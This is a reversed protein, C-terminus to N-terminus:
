RSGIAQQNAPLPVLDWTDNEILSNYEEDMAKKWEKKDSSHIGEDYHAPEGTTAIYACECAYNVHHQKRRSLKPPDWYNGLDAQVENDIGSKCKKKGKQPIDEEKNDDVIEMIRLEPPRMPVQAISRMPMPQVTKALIMPTIANVMPTTGSAMPNIIPIPIEM